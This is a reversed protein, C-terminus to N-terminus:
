LNWHLAYNLQLDTDNSDGLIQQMRGPFLQGLDLLVGLVPLCAPM